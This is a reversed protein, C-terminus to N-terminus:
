EKSVCRGQGPGTDQIKVDWTEEPSVTPLSQLSHSSSLLYEKREQTRDPSVLESNATASTGSSRSMRQKSIHCSISWEETWHNLTWAGVASAMSEMGLQLILVRGGGVCVCVCFFFIYIYLVEKNCTRGQIQEQETALKHRVRQVWSSCCVLSGQGESDGQM